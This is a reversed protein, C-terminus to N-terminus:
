KAEKHGDAEDAGNGWIDDVKVRLARAIRRRTAFHPNAKGTEIKCITAARLGTKDSLDAQTLLAKERLEKLRNM